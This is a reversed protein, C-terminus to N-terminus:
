RLCHCDREGDGLALRHEDLAPDQSRVTPEGLGKAVCSGHCTLGSGTEATIAMAAPPMKAISTVNSWLPRPMSERCFGSKVLQTMSRSATSWVVVDADHCSLEVRRTTQLQAAGM